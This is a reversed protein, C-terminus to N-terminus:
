KPYYATWASCNDVGPLDRCVQWELSLFSTGPNLREDHLSLAAGNGNNNYLLDAPGGNQRWAVYVANGDNLNDLMLCDIASLDDHVLLQGTTLTCIAYAGTTSAAAPGFTEDVTWAGAATPLIAVVSGALVSGVTAKTGIGM